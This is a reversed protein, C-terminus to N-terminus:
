GTPGPMLRRGPARGRSAGSCRRAGRCRMSRRWKAEGPVRVQYRRRRSRARLGDSVRTVGGQRAEVDGMRVRRINGARVTTPRDFAVRTDCRRRLLRPGSIPPRPSGPRVVTPGEVLGRRDDFGAEQIVGAATVCAAHGGQARAITRGGSGCRRQRRYRDRQSLFLFRESTWRPAIANRPFRNRVRAAERSGMGIVRPELGLRVVGAAV